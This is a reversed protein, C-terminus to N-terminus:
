AVVMLHQIAMVMVKSGHHHHIELMKMSQWGL